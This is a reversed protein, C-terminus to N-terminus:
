LHPFRPILSVVVWYVIRLLWECWFTVYIASFFSGTILVIIGVFDLRLWLESVSRSHNMLTHYGSSFGLCISATLLFVSFILFDGLSANPYRAHLYVLLYAEGLLFCIAPVLHSYINVTENNVYLWSALCARTSDSLPRYGHKIFKNDQFWEPMDDYSLLAPRGPSLIETSATASGNDVTFSSTKEDRSNDRSDMSNTLVAQSEAVCDRPSLATPLMTQMM